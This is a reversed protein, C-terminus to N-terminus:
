FQFNVMGIRHKKRKEMSNFRLIEEEHRPADHNQRSIM